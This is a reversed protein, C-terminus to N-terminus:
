QPPLHILAGSLRDLSFLCYILKQYHLRLKAVKNGHSTFGFSVFAVIYIATVAWLWDSGHQSLAEDVGLPPNTSLADNARSLIDM